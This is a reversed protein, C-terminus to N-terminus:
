LGSYATLHIAATTMKAGQRMLFVLNTLARSNPQGFLPATTMDSLVFGNAIIHQRQDLTESRGWLANKM